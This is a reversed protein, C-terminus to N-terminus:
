DRLSLSKPSYSFPFVGSLYLLVSALYYCNSSGLVRERREASLGSYQLFFWGLVDKLAEVNIGDSAMQTVGEDFTTVYDTMRQGQRRYYRRSGFFESLTQAKRLLPDPSFVKRLHELVAKIGAAPDDPKAKLEEDTLQLAARRASGSLNQILRAAICYKVDLNEGMRWIRVEQEYQKWTAPHGDWRPIHRRGNDGDDAM